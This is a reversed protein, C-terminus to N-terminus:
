LSITLLLFIKIAVSLGVMFKMLGEKLFLDKVYNSDVVILRDLEEYAARKIPVNL